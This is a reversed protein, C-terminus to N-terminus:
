VELSGRTHEVTDAKKIFSIIRDIDERMQAKQAVALGFKVIQAQSMIRRLDEEVKLDNEYANLAVMLEYDSSGRPIGYRWQAYAKIIDTLSQYIKKPDPESKEVKLKLSQLAYLAQDQASRTRYYVILRWVGYSILIASIFFLVLVSKGAFTQWFPTLWVDYVDDLVVQM